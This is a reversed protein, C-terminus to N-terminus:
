NLFDFNKKRSCISTIIKLWDWYDERPHAMLTIPMNWLNFLAFSDSWTKLSFPNSTCLSLRRTLFYQIPLCTIFYAINLHEVMKLTRLEVLYSLSLIVTYNDDSTRTFGKRPFKKLNHFEKLIVLNCGKAVWTITMQKSYFIFSCFFLQQCYTLTIQPVNSTPTWLSSIMVM